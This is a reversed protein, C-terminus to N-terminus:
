MIKCQKIKSEEGTNEGNKNQATGSALLFDKPTVQTYHRLSIEPGHGLWSCVKHLPYIEQLETDRTARLNMFFKPWSPIGAHHLVEQFQKRLLVGANRITSFEPFLLANEGTKEGYEARFEELARGIEPFLPIFRCSLNGREQERKRTKKPECIRIKGNQEDIDSWRLFTVESPMRIGGWRTFSFLLRLRANPCADLVRRALEDSVFFDRSRSVQSSARIGDFPNVDIWGREVALSFLTKFHKIRRNWTTTNDNKQLYENFKQAVEPTISSASQEAALRIARRDRAFNRGRQQTLFNLLSNAAANRNAITREKPERGNPAYHIYREILEGLTGCDERADALGMEALKNYHIRNKEWLKLLWLKLHAPIDGLRVCAQLEELREKFVVADRRQPFGYLRFRNGNVLIEIGFSDFKKNQFISAM